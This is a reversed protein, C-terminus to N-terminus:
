IGRDINLGLLAILLKKASNRVLKSKFAIFIKEPISRPEDVSATYQRKVQLNVELLGMDCNCLM